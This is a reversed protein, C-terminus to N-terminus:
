SLLVFIILLKIEGFKPLESAKNILFQEKESYGKFMEELPAEGDRIIKINFKDEPLQSYHALGGGLVESPTFDYPTDIHNKENSNFGGKEFLETM